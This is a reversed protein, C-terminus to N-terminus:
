RAKIHHYAILSLIDVEKYSKLLRQHLRSFTSGSAKFSHLILMKLIISIIMCPRTLIYTIRQGKQQVANSKPGFHISLYNPNRHASITSGLNDM